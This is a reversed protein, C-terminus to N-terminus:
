ARDASVLEAFRAAVGSWTKNLEPDAARVQAVVEDAVLNLETLGQLDDAAWDSATQSLAEPHFQVGWARPGVRFAQNQCGASSALLTAGEPLQDAELWHWQVVPVSSDSFEGFLPDGSADRSFEVSHLGVEPGEPNTRVHGGLATAMLQAGLCIGLTPIQQAVGASLLARTAPLWPAQEDDTPGMSGGLVILGDYGDLTEPVPRDNTPGVRELEVGSETLSWMFLGLGADAQHEVVLVRADSM